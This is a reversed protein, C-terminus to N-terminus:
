NLNCNSAEIKSTLEFKIDVLEQKFDASCRGFLDSMAKFNNLFTGNVRDSLDVERLRHGVGRSCPTNQLM